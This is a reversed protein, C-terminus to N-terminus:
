LEEVKWDFAFEEPYLQQAAIIAVGIDEFYGLAQEVLQNRFTRYSLLYRRM